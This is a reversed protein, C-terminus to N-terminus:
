LKYHTQSLLCVSAIPNCASKWLLLHMCSYMSGLVPKFNNGSSVLIQHIGWSIPYDNKGNGDDELSVKLPVAEETIMHLSTPLQGTFCAVISQPILNIVEVGDIFKLINPHRLTKLRM